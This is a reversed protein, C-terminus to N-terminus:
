AYRQPCGSKHPFPNQEDPFIPGVGGCADCRTLSIPVTPDDAFDTYSSDPLSRLHELLPIGDTDLTGTFLGPYLFLLGYIPHHYYYICYPGFTEHFGKQLLCSRLEDTAPISQADTDGLLVCTGGCTHESEIIAGCAQCCLDKPGLEYICASQMRFAYPLRGSAVSLVDEHAMPSLGKPTRRPFTSLNAKTGRSGNFLSYTPIKCNQNNPETTSQKM